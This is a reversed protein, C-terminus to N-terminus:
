GENPTSRNSGSSPEGKPVGQPGSRKMLRPALILATGYAAFALFLTSPNGTPLDVLVLKLGGIALLPYILWRLERFTERLSAAALGLAAGALVLSRVAAMWGPDSAYGGGTMEFGNVILTGIGAVAVVAVFFRPLRAQWNTDTGIQTTALILYCVLSFGLVMLGLAALSHSAVASDTFATKAAGPIGATMSAAVVYVAAHARLTVRDFRGGLGAAALSLVCWLPLFISKPAAFSSGYLMLIIALSTFFFFNAGRGLRRDVSAFAIAYSILSLVIAALGLVVVGSGTSRAIRAAGGFGILLVVTSQVVEFATVNRHRVLTRITFSAMYIVFLALAILSAARISLENFPPRIGSASAALISMHLVVLDAGFATFWRIGYWGRRYALWLTALGLALLVIAFPEHRYTLRILVLATSLAALSTAWALVPLRHVWAVILGFAGVLVLVLAAANPSFVHFTRTAEILIPFAITVSALGHFEASLILSKRGAREAAVLWIVAYALGLFVGTSHPIAGADTMARLFFAGCFVLCSRGMLTILATPAIRESIEAVEAVQTLDELTSSIDHSELTQSANTELAEVRSALTTLLARLGEIDSHIRDLDKVM